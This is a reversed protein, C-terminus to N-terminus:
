PGKTNPIGCGRKPIRPKIGTAHVEAAQATACTSGHRCIYVYVHTYMHRYIIGPQWGEGRGGRRGGGGGKRWADGGRGQPKTTTTPEAGGKVSAKTPRLQFYAVHLNYCTYTTM